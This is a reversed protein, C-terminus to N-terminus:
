GRKATPPRGGPKPHPPRERQLADRLSTGPFSLLRVSRDSGTLDGKCHLRKARAHTYAHPARPRSPEDRM